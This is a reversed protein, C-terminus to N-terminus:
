QQGRRGIRIEQRDAALGILMSVWYKFLGRSEPPAPLKPLLLVGVPPWRHAPPPRDHMPPLASCGNRLWFGAVSPFLEM